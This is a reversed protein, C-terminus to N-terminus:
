LEARSSVVWVGSNASDPINSMIIKDVKLHAQYFKTKHKAKTAREAYKELVEAANQIASEVVRELPSPKLYAEIDRVVSRQLEPPLEKYISGNLDSENLSREEMLAKIQKKNM